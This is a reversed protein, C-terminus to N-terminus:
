KRSKLPKKKPLSPKKLLPPRSSKSGPPMSTLKPPLWFTLQGLVMSCDDAALLQYYGPPELPSVALPHRKSTPRVRAAPAIPCSDESAKYSIPIQFTLARM